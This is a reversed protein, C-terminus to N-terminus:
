SDPDGQALADQVSKATPATDLIRCLQYHPNALLGHKRDRTVAAAEVAARVQMPDGDLDLEWLLASRVGSLAFPLLRRRNIVAGLDRGQGPEFVLVWATGRPHLPADGEVLERHHKNPNLVLNTDRALGELAAVAGRAEGEWTFAFVESRAVDRVQKGLGLARQLTERATLAAADATKPWRRIVAGRSM